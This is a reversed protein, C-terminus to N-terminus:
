IHIYQLETFFSVFGDDDRKPPIELVTTLTSKDKDIEQLLPKAVHVLEKQHVCVTGTVMLADTTDGGVDILGRSEQAFLDGAVFADKEETVRTTAIGGEKKTRKEGTFNSRSRRRL